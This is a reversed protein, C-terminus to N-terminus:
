FQINIMTFGHPKWIGPFFCNHLSSCDAIIIGDIVIRLPDNHVFFAARLAIFFLAAGGPIVAATGLLSLPETMPSSAASLLLYSVLQGLSLFLYSLLSFILAVFLAAESKGRASAPFLHSLKM